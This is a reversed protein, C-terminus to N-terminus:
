RRPHERRWVWPPVPEPAQWLGRQALRAERELRELDNSSSYRRYWWAQGAALLERNLNRGDALWVEAVRRGYADVDRVELIVSRGTTLAAVFRRADEGGPQDWEPCDVGYLRIPVTETGIRVHLSDGDLVEVVEAPVGDRESAEVCPLGWALAVALLLARM